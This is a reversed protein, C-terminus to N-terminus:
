VIDMKKIEEAVFAKWANRGQLRSEYKVDRANFDAVIEDFWHVPFSGGNKEIIKEVDNPSLEYKDAYRAIRMSEALNAVMRACYHLVCFVSIGLSIIFCGAATYWAVIHTTQSTIIITLFSYIGVVAMFSAVIKEHYKELSVVIGVLFSSGVISMILAFLTKDMKGLEMHPALGFLFLFYVALVSGKVFLKAVAGQIVM